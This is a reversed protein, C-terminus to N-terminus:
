PKMGCAMMFIMMCYANPNNLLQEYAAEISKFEEISLIGNKLFPKFRKPNFQCNIGEIGVLDSHVSVTDLDINVFGASKLLRPLSRGIERNGGAKKQMNILKDIISKFLEMEPEVIGFVGDDLDIIVLKGGAKLIRKIELAAKQPEYLHLFILRAIVFDYENDPLGTEYISAQTFEVNPSINELRKKAKYILEGDVDLANIMSEPLHLSHKETFFGPGCGVELIKMGNKLGYWQLNRFEKEWGMLVQARLRDIEAELGLNSNSAKYTSKYNKM